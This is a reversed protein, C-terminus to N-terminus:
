AEVQHQRGESFLFLSLDSNTSIEHCIKVAIDTEDVIDLFKFAEGNHSFYLANHALM